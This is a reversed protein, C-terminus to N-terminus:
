LHSYVNWNLNAIIFVFCESFLEQKIRYQHFDLM